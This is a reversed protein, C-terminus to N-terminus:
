IRLLVKGQRGMTEAQKVAQPIDDLSFSAGVDSILLGGKMLENIKRFLGLMRIPGQKRTWNSLWFGEVRADNTLLPRPDLTLPENALTGYILMRGNAGLCRILASGTAGGVCDLAFPVMKGGTIEKVREEISEESSCIIADGGLRKLEEGQEKRRVINITRYGDHRSLRIIMRGLASGAASQLVWAGAPVRLVYRTMVLVTAPNVFFAAAQEDPIGEAVPVAQKAPIVVYEAWNGGAANLVAVRKGPKFGRILKILGPGAADIVGVGEFGPTAPLSPLRGYMGRVVMLDSPNIPSALMKVRVQGVGPEPVPVDRVQLVEGPEGFRDFVVAKM